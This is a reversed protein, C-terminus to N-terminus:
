VAGSPSRVWEVAHSWDLIHSSAQQMDVTPMYGDSSHVNTYSEEFITNGIKKKDIRFTGHRYRIYVFVEDITWAEWQSPCACCTQKFHDIKLLKTSM